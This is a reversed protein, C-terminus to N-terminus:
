GQKMAAIACRLWIWSKGMNTRAAITALEEQRDWGGIIEDLEKFGTKIYFKNFDNCKELYADYRSTDKFIDISDLHKASLAESQASLYVQMAADTKGENLLTRVKNFVKALFRRNKDRYLEDVLFNTSEDVKIIDFDPFENLFTTVDPIRGYLDLHSKIYNYEDSYESFFSEDINNLTLLAPNKEVLLKNLFQLQIM